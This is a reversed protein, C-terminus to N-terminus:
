HRFSTLVQIPPLSGAPSCRHLPCVELQHAGTYPWSGGPRCFSTSQKQSSNWCGSFLGTLELFAQQSMLKGWISCLSLTKTKNKKKKKVTFSVLLAGFLPATVSPRCNTPPPPAQVLFAEAWWQSSHLTPARRSPTVDLLFGSLVGAAWSFSLCSSGM